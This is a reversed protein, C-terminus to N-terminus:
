GKLLRQSKKHAVNLRMCLRIAKYESELLIPSEMITTGDEEVQVPPLLECCAEYAPSM